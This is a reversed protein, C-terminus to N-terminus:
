ALSSEPQEGTEPTLTNDQRTAGSKRHGAAIINSSDGIFLKHSPTFCPTGGHFLIVRNARLEFEVFFGSASGRCNSVNSSM